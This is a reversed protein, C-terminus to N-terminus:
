TKQILVTARYPNLVSQSASLASGTNGTGASGTAGGHSHNVTANDSTNDSPAGTNGSYTHSHTVGLSDEENPNGVQQNCGVTSTTGSYGHTHNKMWHNHVISDNAISHTHSPGTHTHAINITASGGTDATDYTGGSDQGPCIVFKNRMDITGDSGNCFAYGSPVASILGSWLIIGGVPVLGWDTNIDAPVILTGDADQHHAGKIEDLVDDFNQNVEDPDITTGNTFTYSKTIAM